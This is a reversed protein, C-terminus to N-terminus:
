VVDIQVAVRRYRRQAIPERRREVAHELAREGLSGLLAPAVRELEVGCKAGCRAQAGGGGVERAEVLGHAIGPEGVRRLREGFRDGREVARAVGVWAEDGGR